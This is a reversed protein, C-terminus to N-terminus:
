SGGKRTTTEHGRVTGTDCADSRRPAPGSLAFECWLQKGGTRAEQGWRDSLAEVLLLGRGHEYEDDEPRGDRRAPFPSDDSVEVRLVAYPRRGTLPHSGAYPSLSLVLEIRGNGHAVANTILESTLLRLTDAIDGPTCWEDLVADILRRASRPATATRPLRFRARRRVAQTCTPSANMTTGIPPPM